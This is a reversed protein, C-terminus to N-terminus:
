ERIKEGILREFYQTQEDLNRVPIEKLINFTTRVSWRLANKYVEIKKNDSLQEFECNNMYFDNAVFNNADFGNGGCNLCVKRDEAM